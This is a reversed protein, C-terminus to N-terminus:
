LSAKVHLQKGYKENLHGPTCKLGVQLGDRAAAGLTAGPAARRLVARLPAWCERHVSMAVPIGFAGRVRTTVPSAAGAPKIACRFLCLVGVYPENNLHRLDACVQPFIGERRLGAIEDTAIRDVSLKSAHPASADWVVFISLYDTPLPRPDESASAPEALFLPFLSRLEESHLNRNVLEYYYKDFLAARPVLAKRSKEAEQLLDATLPCAEKHGDNWDHKQCAKGCYNRNRCGACTLLVGSECREQRKGCVACSQWSDRVM